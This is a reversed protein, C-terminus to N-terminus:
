QVMWSGRFHLRFGDVCCGRTCGFLSLGITEVCRNKGLEEYPDSYSDQM